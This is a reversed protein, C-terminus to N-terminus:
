HALAPLLIRIMKIAAPGLIVIFLSPFVFFILPFLLKIPLKAAMEEARLHRTTRMSDSHVRLAQGVSTGFRDTQLLLAVLSKFEDQDIRQSLNRLADARSLGTRLELAMVSFEESLEKHVFKVEEAVRGITADLGLGAEVCVVMLDLADPLAILLKRQRQRIVMRLWLNPAYYGALAVGVYLTLLTTTGPFRMVHTPILAILLLAVCGCFLKAGFFITPAGQNRFGATILAKRYASFETEDKPKTAKGLRELFEGFQILLTIPGEVGGVASAGGVRAEIRRRWGKIMEHSTLYSYLAFGAVLCMLFTLFSIIWVFAM